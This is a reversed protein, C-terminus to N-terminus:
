PTVGLADSVSRAACYIWRLRAFANLTKWYDLVGAANPLPRAAYALHMAATEIELERVLIADPVINRLPTSSESM